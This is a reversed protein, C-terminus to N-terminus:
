PLRAAIHELDDPLKAFRGPRHWPLAPDHFDSGTSAALHHRRALTALRDLDCRAMGGISVEIGVGGLATFEGILRSLGGNSFRYRHPHALVAQAGCSRLAEVTLDLAPWAEPVYATKGQGLWRDFAEQLTAVHGANLLAKALHLRTVLPTQMLLSDVLARAPVGAKRELREAMTQIRAVRLTALSVLHPQLREGGRADFGLGLVHLARGQWQCSLEVGRSFRLGLAHAASAATELGALTDHDTLAVHQVGHEAAYHMLAVPDLMGDSATSHLHLDTLPAPAMGAIM